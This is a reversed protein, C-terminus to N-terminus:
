RAITIRIHGIKKEELESIEVQENPIPFEEHNLYCQVYNEEIENIELITEQPLKSLRYNVDSKILFDKLEHIFEDVFTDSKNSSHLSLDLDCVTDYL